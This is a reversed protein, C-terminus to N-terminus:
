ARGGVARGRGATELQARAAARVGRSGRETAETLAAMAETSGIRALAAAAARRLSASRRPAWWEGRYLAARLADISQPDRLQGLLELARAYVWGLAGTHDVHELIYVLLPAARDDRPSGLAHM